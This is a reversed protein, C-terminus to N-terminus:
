AAHYRICGRPHPLGTSRRLSQQNTATRVRVSMPYQLKVRRVLGGEDVVSSHGGHNSEKRGPVNNLMM